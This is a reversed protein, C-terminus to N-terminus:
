EHYNEKAKIPNTYHPFKLHVKFPVCTNQFCNIFFSFSFKLSDLNVQLMFKYLIFLASINASNM